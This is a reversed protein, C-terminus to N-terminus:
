PAIVLVGLRNLDGARAARLRPSGARRSQAKAHLEVEVRALRPGLHDPCRVERLCDDGCARAIPLGAERVADILRTGKPVELLVGKPLFRVMPVAADYAVDASPQLLVERRRLDSWIDHAPITIM